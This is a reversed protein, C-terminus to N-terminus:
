RGWDMIAAKVDFPPIRRTEEEYANVQELWMVSQPGFQDRFVRRSGNTVVNDCQQCLGVVFWHGVLVKNHKFSAGECHHNIVPGRECCAACIQREKLWQHYRKEDANATRTNKTAKRQM